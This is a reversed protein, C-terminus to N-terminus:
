LKTAVHQLIENLLAEILNGRLNLDHERRTPFKRHHTDRVITGGSLLTQQIERTLWVVFCKKIVM